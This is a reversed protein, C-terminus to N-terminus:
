NETAMLVLQFDPYSATTTGTSSVGAPLQVLDGFEDYLQIQFWDIMAQPNWKLMKPNQFQRHILFPSQGATYTNNSSEDACFIRCLVATQGKANQSSGDQVENNYHLKDSVVDVYRTYLLPTSSGVLTQTGSVSFNMQNIAFGMTYLLSSRTLYFQRTTLGTSIASLLYSGGNAAFTMYNGTTNWTFTPTNSTILPAIKANIASALTTGSYFGPDITITYDTSTNQDLIYFTKNADTINPIAWPFNVEVVGIRRAFANLMQAPKQVLFNNWPQVDGGAPNFGSTQSSALNRDRSNVHIFAYSPPVAVEDRLDM